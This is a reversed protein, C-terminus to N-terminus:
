SAKPRNMEWEAQMRLLKLMSALLPSTDDARYLASLSTMAGGNDGRIPRFVVGNWKQRAVSAGVLSVGLGAAVLGLATQLEYTEHAVRPLFGAGACISIILRVFHAKPDKPYLVFPENSLRVLDITRRRALVHQRSLAVLLREQLLIEEKFEPGKEPHRAIGVHIRGDRLAEAQAETILEYLKLDVDEHQKVFSQLVPPLVSYMASRTFGIGFWQKRGLGIEQVGAMARNLKEIVQQAEIRFYSGADTLRLPRSKREFLPTKLREELLRIQQSLAPQAVNLRVAARGFHLEECLVLFAQLHRTNM